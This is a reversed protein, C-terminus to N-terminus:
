ELLVGVCRYEPYLVSINSVAFSIYDYTFKDKYGTMSFELVLFKQSDNKRIEDVIFENMDYTSIEEIRDEVRVNVLNIYKDCLLMNSIYQLQAKTHVTSLEGVNKNDFLNFQEDMLEPECSFEKLIWDVPESEDCQIRIEGNIKTIDWVNIDNCVIYDKSSEIMTGYLTHMYHIRDKCFDPYVSTRCERKAINWIPICDYQIYESYEEFDLHIEEVNEGQPLQVDIFYVDFMKHLYPAFITKWRIHNNIFEKYLQEIMDLYKTTKRLVFKVQYRGRDTVLYGSYVRNSNKIRKIISYDTDLLISYIFYERGNKICEMMEKISINRERIDNKDMPSLTENTLDLRNRRSIGTIVSYDDKKKELFVREELENYAKNINEYFPIIVNGIVEKLERREDLDHIEMIRERIYRQYDFEDDFFHKEM